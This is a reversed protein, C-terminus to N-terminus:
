SNPKNNPLKNQQMKLKFNDIIENIFNLFHETNRQKTKDSAKKYLLIDCDKNYELKGNYFVNARTIEIYKSRKECYSIDVDLDKPCTENIADLDNKNLGCKKLICNSVKIEGFNIKSNSKVYNQINTHNIKM